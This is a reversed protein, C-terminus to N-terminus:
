KVMLEKYIKLQGDASLCQVFYLGSRLKSVDLQVKETALGRPQVSITQGLGNIVTLRGVKVGHIEVTASGSAPNPYVSIGDNFEKLTALATYSGFPGDYEHQGLNNYSQDKGPPTTATTGPATAYSYAKWETAINYAAVKPDTAETVINTRNGISVNPRRILSQNASEVFPLVEAGNVTVKPDDPNTGRWRGDGAVGVPLVPRFGIVGFIDVIVGAGVSPQGATGSPYRVLAMADDGNFHVTGGVQLVNPATAIQRPASRQDMNNVIDLLTADPNAIVFVDDKVLTNTTSTANTRMLREEEMLSSGVPAGNSYRRISYANLNVNSSTPNYIEIAKENGLSATGSGVYDVGAMHAGEDYESFFLETGQAHAAGALLMAASLLYYHKKM